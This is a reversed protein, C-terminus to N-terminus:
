TRGRSTSPRVHTSMDGVLSATAVRSEFWWRDDVRVFRDDYFATAITVIPQNALGHLVQVYSRATASSRDAAVDILVNAMFHNTRPSGDHLIVVRGVLDRVAPAGTAPPALGRLLLTGHEFLAAFEDFAAADIRHAYLHMLREIDHGDQIDETMAGGGIAM